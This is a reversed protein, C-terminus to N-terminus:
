PAAKVQRSERLASDIAAKFAPLPQAGQLLKGNILFSPTGIRMGANKVADLDAQIAPVHRHDDLASRFRTMDIGDVEQAYRELDERELERQNEFLLNHYRFFAASGQQVFVEHAAEAAPMAHSHFPLPYYRFVLLVKGPYTKFVEDLTPVVRSCFPCQFDSFTQIVVPADTAGMSARDAPVPLEYVEAEVVPPASTDVVMKAETSGDAIITAYLESPKVGSAILERARILEADILAEFAAQPQAGRLNRGNIFFTPTGKTGLSEVLEVDSEIAARHIHQKLAARLKRINVGAKRAYREIDKESLNDRNEHLLKHMRLFKGQAHAELAAEAAPMANIHFPLPHNKYVFRLDRGYKKKLAELTPQVRQCFPCEYDTVVVLTVLANKNGQQPSTGVPVRYVAVPDPKMRPKALPVEPEAPEAAVPSPEEEDDDGAFLTAVYAGLVMWQTLSHGTEFAYRFTLDNGTVERKMRESVDRLQHYLAINAVAELVEENAKAEEKEARAEELAGAIAVNVIGLLRTASEPSVTHVRVVATHQKDFSATLGTVGFQTLPEPKNGSLADGNITLLADLASDAMAQEIHQQIPGQGSPARSADIGRTVAGRAGFLIGDDLQAAILEGESDWAVLKVGGHEGAPAGKLLSEAPPMRVFLAIEPPMTGTGFVVLSEAQTLDAGLKSLLYPKLEQTLAEPNRLLDLAPDLAEGRLALVAASDPPAFRVIPPHNVPTPTGACAMLCLGALSSLLAYRAERRPFLSMPELIDSRASSKPRVIGRPEQRAIGPPEGDTAPYAM